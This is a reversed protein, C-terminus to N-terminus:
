NESLAKTGKQPRSGQLFLFDRPGVTSGMHNLTGLVFTFHPRHIEHMSITLLEAWGNRSLSIIKCCFVEYEVSTAVLAWCVVQWMSGMLSDATRKKPTKDEASVSDFEAPLNTVGCSLSWSQDGRFHPLFPKGTHFFINLDTLLFWPKTVCFEDDTRTEIRYVNFRPRLRQWASYSM